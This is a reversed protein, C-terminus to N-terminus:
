NSTFADVGESSPNWFRSNFRPLQTNYYSAFRDITLLILAGSLIWTGLPVVPSAEIMM